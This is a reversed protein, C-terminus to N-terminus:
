SFINDHVIKTELYSSIKILKKFQLISYEMSSNCTVIMMPRWQLSNLM